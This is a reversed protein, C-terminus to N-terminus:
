DNSLELFSIDIEDINMSQRFVPLSLIIRVTMIIQEGTMRVVCESCGLTRRVHMPQPSIAANEMVISFAM